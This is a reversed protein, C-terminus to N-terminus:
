NARLSQNKVSPTEGTQQLADLFVILDSCRVECGTATRSRITDRVHNVAAQTRLVCLPKLTSTETSGKNQSILRFTELM